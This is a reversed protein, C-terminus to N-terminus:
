DESRAATAADRIQRSVAILLQSKAQTYRTIAAIVEDPLASFERDDIGALYGNLGDETELSDLLWELLRLPDAPRQLVGPAAQVAM